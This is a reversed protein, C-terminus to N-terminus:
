MFSVGFRFNVLDFFDNPFELMRLADMVLFEAREKSLQQQEAREQAYHIMKPSIDIGYLKEIQPYAQATAIFWGGPGCGIDLVRRFQTPDQQEPLVGGLAETALREQVILRNLEDQNGKDQVFYTGAADSM